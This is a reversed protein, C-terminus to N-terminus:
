AQMGHVLLHEGACLESVDAADGVAGEVGDEIACGIDGQLDEDLESGDATFWDDDGAIFVAARLLFYHACRNRRQRYFVLIGFASFTVEMDSCIM